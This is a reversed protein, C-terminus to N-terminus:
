SLCNAGWMPVSGTSHQEPTTSAGRSSQSGLSTPTHAPSTGQMRTAVAICSQACWGSTLGPKATRAAPPSNSHLLTHNRYPNADTKRDFLGTLPAPEASTTCLPLLPCSSQKDWCTGGGQFYVLVKATDGPMVQFSYPSSHSFICRTAGGPYILSPKDGPLVALPCRQTANMVCKYEDKGDTVPRGPYGDRQIHLPDHTPCCSCVSAALM